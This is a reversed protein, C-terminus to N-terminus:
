DKTQNLKIIRKQIKRKLRGKRCVKMTTYSKNKQFFVYKINLNYHKNISEIVNTGKLPNFFPKPLPSILLNWIEYIHIPTKKIYLHINKINTIILLKRLYKTLLLKLLKNKKLSKKNQFFKLFISVTLSTYLRGKSNLISIFFKNFRFNFYLNYYSNKKSVNFQNIFKFFRYFTKFTLIHYITLFDIVTSNFFLYKKFFKFRKRKSPQINTLFSDIYELV